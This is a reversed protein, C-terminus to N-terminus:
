KAGERQKELRELSMKRTKLDININFRGLFSMGLLGDKLDPDSLQDTLVAAMVKECKVDEIKVSDLIVAKANAMRGDALKLTMNDKIGSTDIGLEEGIRKSLIIISAGTDVLLVANVKDNLLAEVVIHRSEGDRAVKISRTEGGKSKKEREESMWNEYADNFRKDRQTSFEKEKATLEKKKDEWKKAMAFSDEASSREVNKVQSKDFVVTGFGMNVEIKKEDEKEIIGEVEGGNKLYVTDAGALGAALVAVLLFVPSKRM